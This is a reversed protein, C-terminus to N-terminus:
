ARAGQRPSSAPAFHHEESDVHDALYDLVGEPKLGFAAAVLKPDMADVLHALRTVRLLRPRVGAADLVHSLYATSAPRSDAKTGRTVILHLNRTDTSQRHELVRQLAAWTAPDLPTPAPRNGLSVTRQDNDINDVRLTRAELSSAAHLLALLGVLAEHPHVDPDTTWRHFLARQRAMTLTPGTFGRHQPARLDRTPDILIVKHAKAWRFFQRLVTLTRPRYGVHRSALFLEADERNVLAWQKKSRAAVFNALDRVTSLAHDITSDSRPKTGARRARDNANVMWAGFDAVVPRLEGPVAYIRRQRRQRALHDLQDTKDALEYWVFYAELARALAGMSRGPQRSRELVVTPTTSDGSALIRGLRGIMVSARAPSYVEILHALFGELWGPVVDLEDLLHQGRVVPRDPDRQWCRSCLGNVPHTTWASCRQCQRPPKRAPRPRSCTGCWGTDERILGLRGCRPCPSKAAAAAAKRRCTKCLATDVRRVLKGCEHCQRSCLVCRGTDDQLVRARGCGPCARRAAAEGERRTCRCCLDRDKYGVPAGCGLCDRQRKGM